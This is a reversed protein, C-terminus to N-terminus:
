KSFIQITLEKKFGVAPYVSKAMPTAIIVAQKVGQNQIERLVQAIATRAYGKRRYAEPTAVNYIGVGGGDKFVTIATVPEGEMYGVYHQFAKDHSPADVFIRCFIDQVNEPIGFGALVVKRYTELEVETRVAQLEFGCIHQDSSWNELSLAFGTMENEENAQFKNALLAKEVLEDAEHSYFLWFLRQGKETYSDEIEKVEDVPDKSESRKYSLVSNILGFSINSECRQIRDNEVFSFMGSLKSLKEYAHVYNDVIREKIHNSM